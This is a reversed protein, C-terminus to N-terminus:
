GTRFADANTQIEKVEVLQKEILEQRVVISENVEVGNVTVKM